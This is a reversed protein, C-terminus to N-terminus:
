LPVPLRRFTEILQPVSIRYDGTEVESQLSKLRPASNLVPLLANWAIKGEGPMRHWDGTKDTDHLHATVIHPLLKKLPDSCFHLQIGSEYFFPEREPDPTLYYAHGTDFCCGFWPSSISEFIPLLADASGPNDCNNELAIIIRHKEAEPLLEKLAQRALRNYDEAPTGFYIHEYAGMHITYTECGMDACYAMATKHAEIMPRILSPFKGGTGLGLAAGWIGHADPFSLDYMGAVRMLRLLFAPEEMIRNLLESSLVLRTCGCDRFQAFIEGLGSEPIDKWQYYHSTRVM